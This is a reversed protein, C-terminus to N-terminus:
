KTHKFVKKIYYVKLYNMTFCPYYKKLKTTYFSLLLLMVNIKLKVLRIM